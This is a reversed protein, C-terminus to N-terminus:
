RYKALYIFTVSETEIRELAIKIETNHIYDSALFGASMLFLIVDCEYLLSKISEDWEEGPKILGDHRSEIVGNRILIDLHTLLKNKFDEDERAYSIFIKV